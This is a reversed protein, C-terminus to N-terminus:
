LFGCDLKWAKRRTQSLDRTLKEKMFYTSHPLLMRHKIYAKEQFRNLAWGLFAGIVVSIFALGVAGIRWGYVNSYVLPIAEVLGYLCGWSFGIWISLSLVSWAIFTLM